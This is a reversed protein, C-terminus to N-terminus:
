SPLRRLCCSMPQCTAMELDCMHCVRGPHVHSSLTLNHSNHVVHSTCWLCFIGCLQRGLPRCVTLFESHRGAKQGCGGHGAQQTHRLQHFPHLVGESRQEGAQRQVRGCAHPAGGSNGQARRASFGASPCATNHFPFSVPTQCHSSLCLYPNVLMLHCEFPVQFATTL